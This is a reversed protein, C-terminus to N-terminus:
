VGVVEAANESDGSLVIDIGASTLHNRGDSEQM